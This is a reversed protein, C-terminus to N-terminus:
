NAKKAVFIMSSYDNSEKAMRNSSWGKMFAKPYPFKNGLYTESLLSVYYADFTMPLSEILEFNYKKLLSEMSSKSFHYLHRPVDLGAWYKGYQKADPSDINPVAVFLFGRKKLLRSLQKMREDLDLVHEMVHWLSIIDFKEDPWQDLQSEEFIDLHHQQQAFARAPENPEVGSVEWQNKKFHALVEATGCGIDLMSGMQHYSTILKFKKSINQNRLMNYLWAIPSKKNATHSLYDESDYYAGLEEKRPIPNTFIFGCSDCCEIAFDEQSLFYDKSQLYGSFDPHGCIPCQKRHILEKSQKVHFM